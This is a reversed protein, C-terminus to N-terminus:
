QSIQTKKIFYPYAHFCKNNKFIKFKLQFLMNVIKIIHKQFQNRYTPQAYGIFPLHNPPQTVANSNSGVPTQAKVAM